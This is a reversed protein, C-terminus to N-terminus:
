FSFTTWHIERKHTGMPFYLFLFYIKLKLKFNTSTPPQKRGGHSPKWLLQRKLHSTIPVSSSMSAELGANRNESGAMEINTYYENGMTIMMVTMMIITIIM